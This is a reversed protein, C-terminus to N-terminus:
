RNKATYTKLCFSKWKSTLGEWDMELVPDLHPGLDTSASLQIAKFLAPLKKRAAKNTMLFEIMTMAQWYRNSPIRKGNCLEQLPLHMKKNLVGKCVIIGLNDQDHFRAQYLSALGEHVWEGSNTIRLTRAMLSHVFEHTYVPRMTRWKEDWASTAIGHFTYGGTSPLHAEGNLRKAMRQPFSRYDEERSFVILAPPQSHEDLFPLDRRVSLVVNELHRALKGTDLDKCDTLLWLDDGGSLQVECEPTDPFAVDGLDERSLLACDEEGEHISIGDLWLEGGERFWFGLRDIRDIGPIRGSSYRSWKLPLVIERWGEHSLTVKRWFHTRRDAEILWVEVVTGKRKEAEDPSRYAWFSINAVSRWDSEIKGSKTLFISRPSATLRVAWGGPVEGQGKKGALYLVEEPLKERSVCIKGQACWDHSLKASEFDFLVTQQAAREVTVAFCGLMLLVIVGSFYAYRRVMM